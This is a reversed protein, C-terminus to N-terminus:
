PPSITFNSASVDFIDGYIVSVVRIKAETTAPGTVRWAQTRDNSANSHTAIITRWTSGGDRSLDISVPGTVGDSTWIIVQTTGIIWNEGGDPSMVMINKAQQQKPNKFSAMFTSQSMVFISVGAIVAIAGIVIIIKKGISM